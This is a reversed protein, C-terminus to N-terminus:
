TSPKTVYLIVSKKPTQVKKFELQVKEVLTRVCSIEDSTLNNPLNLTQQSSNNKFNDLIELMQKEFKHIEAQEEVKKIVGFAKMAFGRRDKNYAEERKELDAMLNNVEKNQPELALSNRLHKKAEEYECLELLAKANQFSIKCDKKVNTIRSLENCMSCTKRWMKRKNYCVALNTYLKVLLERQERQEGESALNCFELAQVASHFSRCAPAYKGMTFCEIGRKRVEDVKEKVVSFNRRNHEDLKECADEDGTEIYDIIQIVFLCDTKPPVRPPCGMDGYLYEYGIIFQAEEKVRMTMVALNLGVLVTGNGSIFSQPTGRLHSSDFPRDENEFYGDYHCQVRAKKNGIVEGKGQKTICKFIRYDDVKKMKKKLDAFLYRWPSRKLEAYEEDEDDSEDM